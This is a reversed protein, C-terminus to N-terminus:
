IGPPTLKDLILAFKKAMERYSYKSIEHENGAYGVSGTAKYEKYFRRLANKIDEVTPARVGASTENLLRSIVNGEVGGVALIPRGAELYEFVKGPYVGYEEPDDWDLLLLLQSERQKELVSQRPIIGYQKIISSIGYTRSEKELWREQGGYFRIEIDAPNLVGDALLQRLAAMLKWTHQKAPYIYGTYTVTFKTTLEAPPMNVQGPDFGMTIPLAVKEKHLAKLKEVWPSSVTVLVDADALTKRELRRDILRRLFSYSYNHNQSWLDQLDALWPIRHRIKLESAVIHATVPASTSIIADITEKELLEDGAKIAFPRWTKESDPYNVIEGIRTLIFDLWSKNASVGLRQKVKGRIDDNPKLRLLKRWFHLSDRYPTEIIRLGVNPLEDLSATLVIPQWNFEPLYKALGWLRPSGGRWLPFPYGIILVKKM